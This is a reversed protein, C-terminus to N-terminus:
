RANGSTIKINSLFMKEEATSGLDFSLSDFQLAAPVGKEFEAVKTTGCFVQLLDGRKKITVTVRNIALDNSFGPAGVYKSGDMYGPAGPFKGEIYVEGQRGSFGPRIRVDLFSEGAGAVGAKALRVSLARAGWRYDKAAIVDYSLDFDPPLPKKLGTPTITFGAMSAWQGNVGTVNAVVSTAGTNDLNSHWNLPKKGVTAASFDEFFHVAPDAANRTAVDSLKGATVVEVEAPSRLPKYPQGKVKESDFFYDYLYQVNFNKQMAQHLTVCVPENLQATWTITIWQPADTKSLEMMKPDIAYVTLRKPSGSSGDFVDTENEIIVSPQLWHIEAPEQLRNRYKQRNAELVAVRKATNADEREMGRSIERQNGQYQQTLLRLENARNRVLAEGLADLYQGRTVKVVPLQHNKTVIVVKRNGNASNRVFWSPFQGLVAHKSIDAAKELEPGHGQQEFTPLIFYFREPTNVAELPLGFEGNAEMTWYFADSTRPVMKKNADYKLSDYLPAEVGYKQPLAASNQNYAGLTENHIVKVDGLAGTPLYSAQMWNALMRAISLQRASYVRGAATLPATADKFDYVKIWGLVQGELSKPTINQAFPVAGSLLCVVALSGILATRDRM